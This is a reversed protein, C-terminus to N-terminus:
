RPRAPRAGGARRTLGPHHARLRETLAGLTLPGGQGLHRLLDAAWAPVQRHDTGDAHM